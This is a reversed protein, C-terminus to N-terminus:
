RHNSGGIKCEIGGNPEGKNNQNLIFTDELQARKNATYKAKIGAVAENLQTEFRTIVFVPQVQTEKKTKM